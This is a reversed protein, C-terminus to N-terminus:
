QEPFYRIRKHLATDIASSANVKLGEVQYLLTATQQVRVVANRTSSYWRLCQQVRQLQEYVSSLM